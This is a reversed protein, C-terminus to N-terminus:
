QQNEKRFLKSYAWNTITFIFAFGISLLTLYLMFIENGGIQISSYLSNEIDKINRESLITITNIMNFIIGTFVALYWLDTFFFIDGRAKKIEIFLYYVGFLLLSEIWIKIWNGTTVLLLSLVFAIIVPSIIETVKTFNGLMKIFFFYIITTLISVAILM